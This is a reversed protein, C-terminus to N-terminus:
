CNVLELDSKKEQKNSSFAIYAGTGIKYAELGFKEMQEINADKRDYVRQIAIVKNNTNEREEIIKETSEVIKSKEPIEIKEEPFLEELDQGSNLIIYVWESLIDIEECLKRIIEIAQPFGIAAKKMVHILHVGYNTIFEDQMSKIKNVAWLVEDADDYETYKDEPAKVHNEIIGNAGDDFGEPRFYTIKKASKETNIKKNEQIGKIFGIMNFHKVDIRGDMVAEYVELTYNFVPEGNVITNEYGVFLNLVVPPIYDYKAFGFSYLTSKRMTILRRKM